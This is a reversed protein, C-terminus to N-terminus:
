IGSFVQADRIRQVYNRIQTPTVTIEGNALLTNKIATPVSDVPINWGRRRFIAPTGDANTVAVGSDDVSQPAILANVTAVAVGPIKVIVFDGPWSGSSNGSAIWAAKSERIGWLHGDEMVSVIHGRKYCGRRDKVPDPHTNNRTFILLEAM